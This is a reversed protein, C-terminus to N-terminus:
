KNKLLSAMDTIIGPHKSIVKGLMILGERTEAISNTISHLVNKLSAIEIDREQIIKVLKLDNDNLTAEIKKVDEISTM